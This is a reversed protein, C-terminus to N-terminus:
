RRRKGGGLSGALMSLALTGGGLVLWNPIGSVLTSSTFWATMSSLSGPGTTPVRPAPGPTLGACRLPGGPVDQVWQSCSTAAPITTGGYPPIPSVPKPVMAGTYPITSPVQSAAEQPTGVYIQTGDALTMIGTTQDYGQQPGLQIDAVIGTSTDIQGFGRM